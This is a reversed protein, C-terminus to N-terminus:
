KVAPVAVRVWVDQSARMLWWSDIRVPGLLLLEVIVPIMALGRADTLFKTPEVLLIPLRQQVIQTPLKGVNCMENTLTFTEITAFSRCSVGPISSCAACDASVLSAAFSSDVAQLGTPSWSLSPWLCRAGRPAQWTTLDAHPAHRQGYQAM